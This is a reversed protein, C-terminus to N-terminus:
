DEMVMIDTVKPERDRSYGFVDDEGDKLKKVPWGNPDTGDNFAVDAVRVADVPNNAVVRVERTQTVRYYRIEPM